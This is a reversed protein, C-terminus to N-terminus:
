KPDMPVSQSGVEPVITDVVFECCERIVVKVGEDFDESRSIWLGSHVIKHAEQTSMAKADLFCM